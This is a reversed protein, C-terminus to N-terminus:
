ADHPSSHFMMRINKQYNGLSHSIITYAVTLHTQTMRWIEVAQGTVTDPELLSICWMRIETQRMCCHKAALSYIGISKERMLEISFRKRLALDIIVPAIPQM